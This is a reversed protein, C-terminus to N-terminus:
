CTAELDSSVAFFVEDYAEADELVKLRADRLQDRFVGAASEFMPQKCRCIGNKHNNAM